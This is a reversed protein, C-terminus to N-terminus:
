GHGEGIEVRGFLNQLIGYTIGWVVRGEVDYAPLEFRTGEIWNQIVSDIAGSAM